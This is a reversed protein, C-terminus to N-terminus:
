ELFIEDIMNIINNTVNGLNETSFNDPDTEMWVRGKDNLSLKLTTDQITIIGSIRSISYSIEESSLFNRVTSSDLLNNGYFKIERPYETKGNENKLEIQKIEEFKSIIKKVGETSFKTYHPNIDRKTLTRIYKVFKSVEGRRQAFIVMNGGSLNIISDINRPYYIKQEKLILEGEKTTELKKFKVPIEIIGSLYLEREDEIYKVDQIIQKGVGIPPKKTESDLTNIISPINRISFYKLELFNMGLRGNEFTRNLEIKKLGIKKLSM